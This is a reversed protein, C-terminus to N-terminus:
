DDHIRFTFTTDPLKYAKFPYMVQALKAQELYLYIVNFIRRINKPRDEQCGRLILSRWVDLSATLIGSENDRNYVASVNLGVAVNCFDLWWEHEEDIILFGFSLHPWLETRDAIVDSVNSRFNQFGNLYQLFGSPTKVKIRHKDLHSVPEPALSLLHDWEILTTTVPTIM